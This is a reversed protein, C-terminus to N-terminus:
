RYAKEVLEAIAHHGNINPHFSEERTKEHISLKVGYMDPSSTCLEHHTFADYSGVAYVVQPYSSRAANVAGEITQDMHKIESDIWLMKARNITPGVESICHEPPDVPFFRPYGVVVVKASPADQAIIMYLRQLSESNNPAYRGMEAIAHNVKDKWRGECDPFILCSKIVDAFHADNGGITLSILADASGLWSLQPPEHKYGAFLASITAGSCAHFSFHPSYFGLGLSADFPYALASRHCQDTSTDTGSIYPQNSQGSSYSDGLAVYTNAVPAPPPPTVPPPPPPPPQPPPPTAPNFSVNDIEFGYEDYSAEEVTFGTINIAATELHNFGFQNAALTETGSTTEITVTVSSPDDIFGVDLALGTVSAATSTGPLVFEGHIPGHFRPFGSLVPNTSSVEDWTVFPPEDPTAGSFIIGEDDYQTTISEGEDREDFTITNTGEFAAAPTVAVVLIAIVTILVGLLVSPVRRHTRV